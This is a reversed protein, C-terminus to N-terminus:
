DPQAVLSDKTGTLHVSTWDATYGSVTADVDATKFFSELKSAYDRAYPIFSQGAHAPNVSTAAHALKVSYTRNGDTLNTVLKEDTTDSWAETGPLTVPEENEHCFVWEDVVKFQFQGDKLDPVETQIPVFANAMDAANNAVTLTSSGTAFSLKNTSTQPAVNRYVSNGNETKMKIYLTRM